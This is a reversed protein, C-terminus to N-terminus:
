MWKSKRIYHDMIECKLRRLPPGGRRSSSCLLASGKFTGFRFAGAIWDAASNCRDCAAHGDRRRLDSGDTMANVWVQAHAGGCLRARGNVDFTAKTASRQCIDRMDSMMSVDLVTRLEMSHKRCTQPNRNLSGLQAHSWRKSLSFDIEQGRVFTFLYFDYSGVARTLLSVQLSGTQTSYWNFVAAPTEETSFFTKVTQFVSTWKQHSFLVPFCQLFYM